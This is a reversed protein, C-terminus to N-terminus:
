ARESVGVKEVAMVVAAALLEWGRDLFHPNGPEQIGPCSSYSEQGGCAEIVVKHLDLVSAKYQLAV